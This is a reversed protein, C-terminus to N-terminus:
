GEVPPRLPLHKKFENRQYVSELYARQAEDLGALDSPPRQGIKVQLFLDVQAFPIDAMEMPRGCAPDAQRSSDTIERPVGVLDCLEMVETKWTGALPQYTAL